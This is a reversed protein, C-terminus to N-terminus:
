TPYKKRIFDITDQYEAAYSPYKVLNENIYDACEIVFEKDGEKGREALYYGLNNRIKCLLKENEWNDKDVIKEYYEEYGRKVFNIAYELYTSDNTTKYNLWFSYSMANYLSAAIKNGREETESHAIIQLRNKIHMYLLAGAIAMVLSLIALSTALVDKFIDYDNSAGASLPIFMVGIVVGIAASAVIFLFALLVKNLKEKPKAKQKLEDKISQYWFPAFSLIGAVIFITAASFEFTGIFFTHKIVALFAGFGFCFFGLIPLILSIKMKTEKM